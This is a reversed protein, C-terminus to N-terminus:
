SSPTRRELFITVIFLLFAVLLVTTAVTRQPNREKVPAGVANPTHDRSAGTADSAMVNREQIVRGDSRPKVHEGAM